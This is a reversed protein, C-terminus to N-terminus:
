NWTNTVSTSTVTSFKQSSSSDFNFRTSGPAQHGVSFTYDAGDNTIVISGYNVNADKNLTLSALSDYDTTYVNNDTFHLEQASVIADLASVAVADQARQRYKNYQPIAIAALIGIIAVVILLEILTFGERKQNLKTFM